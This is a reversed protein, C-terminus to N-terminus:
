PGTFGVRVNDFRWRDSPGGPRALEVFVTTIIFSGVDLRYCETISCDSLRQCDNM